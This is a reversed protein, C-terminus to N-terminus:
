SVSWHSSGAILEILCSGPDQGAAALYRSASGRGGLSREGLSGPTTNCAVEIADLLSSKGTGNAGYIVVLSCSPDFELTTTTTAGRFSHLTLREIRAGMTLLERQLRFTSASPPRYDVSSTLPAGSRIRPGDDTTRPRDM